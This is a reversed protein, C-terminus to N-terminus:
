LVVSLGVAPSAALKLALRHGQLYRCPLRSPWSRNLPFSGPTCLDRQWAFVPCSFRECSVKAAVGSGGGAVAASTTSSAVLPPPSRAHTEKGASSSTSDPPSSSAPGGANRGWRQSVTAAAANSRRTITRISSRVQASLVVGSLCAIYAIFVDCGV